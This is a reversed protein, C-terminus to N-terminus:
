EFEVVIVEYEGIRNLRLKIHRGDEEFPLDIKQWLCHVNSTRRGTPAQLRIEINEIAAIRDYQQQTPANHNVLHLIRRDPQDYLNVGITAHANIQVPLDNHAAWRIANAFLTEIFPSLKECQLSDLRAPVYVVRGLGYENVIVSPVSAPEMRDDVLCALTKGQGLRVVLHPEDYIVESQNLDKTIAHSGDFQISRNAAPLMGEYSVGFVDALAFDSRRIAKDDYLSTEHTAILGGGRAVYERVAQAQEDTLSAENALCLLRFEGIKDHFDPRHLTVIPQGTRLMASYFGVYPALFRSRPGALPYESMIKKHVSDDHIARPFALFKVPTTTSYDFYKENEQLFEFCTKMGLFHWCNPILGNAMVQFIKHRAEVETKQRLYINQLVPLPFVAGYNSLEGDKWLTHVWPHNVYIEGLTGDYYQLNEPKPWSHYLTVADPKCRKVTETFDRTIDILCQYLFQTYRQSDPDRPDGVLEPLSTMEWLVTVPGYPEFKEPLESGFMDQYKAKCHECFCVHPSLGDVYLGDPKYVSFMEELVGLLYSRFKPNNICGFSAPPAIGYAKGQWPDGRSNRIACEDRLPHDSYLCNPNMYAIIRVGSEKGQAMAERLYDVQGLAPAHKAKQSQYYVEAGWYVGVRFASGNHAAIEKVLSTITGAEAPAGLDRRHDKSYLRLSGLWDPNQKKEIREPVGGSVSPENDNKFRFPPEGTLETSLITPCWYKEIHEIVKGLGQFHQEPGRHYSDTLDRCLVTDMGLYVMQRIGFSRGLVCVNTHVGMFIVHKIGHQVFLNYIEQGSESFVDEPAIEIADSQRTWPYGEAYSEPPNCIKATDCSCGLEVPLPPEREPDRNNWKFEVPASVHPASLARQRQPTNKYFGMCDSPAHIIFVGMERALKVVRDIAPALEAVRRQANKCTHRDWMDCIIIATDRSNWKLTEKVVKFQDSGQCTRERFRTDLVLRRDARGPGSRFICNTEAPLFHWGLFIVVAMEFMIKM